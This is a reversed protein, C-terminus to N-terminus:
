PKEELGARQILEVTHRRRTREQEALDGFETHVRPNITWKSYPPLQPRTEGGVLRHTPTAWNEMCLVEMAYHLEWDVSRTKAYSYKKYVRRIDRATIGELSHALIHGAIWHADDLVSSDFTEHYFRYMHPLLFERFLADVREATDVSVPYSAPHKGMGAAEIAHLVLMVRVTQGEWKGLATRMHGPLLMVDQLGRSLERLGEYVVKAEDGLIVDNEGPIFAALREILAGYQNLPGSDWPRERPPECPHAQFVLFRQLLGDDQAQRAVARIPEPQIGGVISAGFNPVYIAGRGIRLIKESGGNFLKLWHGRDRGSAKSSGYGDMRSFLSSLEDFEVLTGHPNNALMAGLAEITTDNILFQREEPPEPKAPIPGPDQDDMLRDEYSKMQRKYIKEEIQHKAIEAAHARDYDAGVKKLPRTMMALAPSKKISPNGVAAIWLRASETWVPNTAQPRIKIQDSLAAACTALGFMALLGPDVGNRSACDDVYDRLAKPLISVSFPKATFERALSVPRPWGSEDVEESELEVTEPRGFKDRATQLTRALDAYREQWRDPTDMRARSAQMLAETIELVAKDSPTKAALKAVIDRASDHLNDGAIISKVLDGLARSDTSVTQAAPRPKDQDRRLATVLWEPAPALNRLAEGVDDDDVDLWEYGPSGPAIVYGGWSRTDVGAANHGSPLVLQGSMSKCEVGPPLSFYYHRGGSATVACLTDEAEGYTDQLIDWEALGNKGDKVDLDVVLIGETPRGVMAFNGRKSWAHIEDPNTTANKFGNAVIPQKLSNCPFVPVGNRAYWLALDVLQERM